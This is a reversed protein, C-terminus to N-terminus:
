SSSNLLVTTNNDGLSFAQYMRQNKRRPLTLTLTLILTLTLTQTLTLLLGTLGWCLNPMCGRHFSLNCAFCNLLLGTSMDCESCIENFELSDVHGGCTPCLEGAGAMVRVCLCEGLFPTLVDESLMQVEAAEEVTDSDEVIVREKM